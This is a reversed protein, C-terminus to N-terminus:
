FEIVHYPTNGVRAAAYPFGSNYMMDAKLLYAEQADAITFFDLFTKEYYEYDRPLDNGIHSINGPITTVRCKEVAQKSFTSSDSCVIVSQQPHSNAIMRLQFLAREILAQRDEAPLPESYTEENFDDLLGCFRASVTIYSSGIHAKIENLHAQLRRSPKFLEKFLASFDDDYCFAANSYFHLQLPEDKTLAKKFQRRQWNRERRSNTQTDVIIPKSQSEAFTVEDAKIIWDYSNPVLYDTLNFPHTFFLRFDRGTQKCTLYLSVAGRLRDVLGGSSVNGCFMSIACPLYSQIREAGMYSDAIQQRTQEETRRRIVGWRYTSPTLRQMVKELMWKPAYKLSFLGLLLNTSSLNFFKIRELTSLQTVDIRELARKLVAQVIDSADTLQEYNKLYFAAMSRWSYFLKLNARHYEESYIGFEQEILSLLQIDCSLLQFRNPKISNTISEEHHRYFYHAKAFAVREAKLLYHREDIEDSYVWVVDKKIPYSMNVWVEKKYLGGNCGIRWEPMTEIVLDRGRYIRECDFDAAPLVHTTQRSKLEVFRMQPYVIDADTEKMRNTMLELYNNSISDDVDLPVILKGKSEYVARDRPRKASGSNKQSSYRIRKDTKALNKLIAETGDTSGDNVVVWEWETYTQHCLCEYASVIFMAGNYVPTVVSVLTTDKM